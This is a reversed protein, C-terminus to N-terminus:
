GTFGEAFAVNVQVQVAVGEHSRERWRSLKMGPQSQITTYPPLPGTGGQTEISLIVRGINGQQPLMIKGTTDM